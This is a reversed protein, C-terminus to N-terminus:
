LKKGCHPCYNKGEQQNKNMEEIFGASILGTPVAILGIGLIAIFTGVIKGLVTIPYIDGYGVTTLTCIAWWIGSFANEFTDPQAENEIYYMFVSSFLILIFVIICASVLQSAKRKIIKGVTLIAKSYRSMKLMSIIRFLRLLRLININGLLFLTFYFPLLAILDILAKVSFIYKIRAQTPKLQPFIDVSTWIRLLYEITFIIISVTEIYSRLKDIYPKIDTFTDLIIILSNILILFVLIFDVINSWIDNIDDDRITNYIKERLTNM